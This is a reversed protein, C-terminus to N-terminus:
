CDPPASDLALYWGDVRDNEAGDFDYWVQAFAEAPHSVVGAYPDMMVVTESSAATIVSFHDEEGDWWGVIVPLGRGVLAALGALTGGDGAIVTGLSRAADIMGAHDTGDATTRALVALEEATERRGFFQAVAALCTPGCTSDTPQVLVPVGLPTM